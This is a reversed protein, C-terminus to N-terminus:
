SFKITVTFQTPTGGLASTTLVIWKGAPIGNVAFDAQIESNVDAVISASPITTGAGYAATDDRYELSFTVTGTDTVGRIESITIASETIWMPLEESAGPSVIVASKSLISIGATGVDDLNAIVTKNAETPISDRLQSATIRVIGAQIATVLDQSQNVKDKTVRSVKLIDVTARPPISLNVLDGLTVTRDTLNRVNCDDTYTNVINGM